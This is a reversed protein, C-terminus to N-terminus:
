IDEVSSGYGVPLDPRRRRESGTVASNPPSGEVSVEDVMSSAAVEDAAGSATSVESVTGDAAKLRGDEGATSSIKGGIEITATGVGGGGAIAAGTEKVGSWNVASIAAM